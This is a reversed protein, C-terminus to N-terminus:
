ELNERSYVIQGEVITMCVNLDDDVLVIDADKGPAISGKRDDVNIARAANLSTTKWLTEVPLNTVSMLNRLAANMSLTTGALTGDACIRVSGDKKEVAQHSFHYRGDPMGALKVSDTILILRDAGKCRWLIEIAAPHVHELDCILECNIGDLSLVAGVVGPVRHHLPSMANFAHTAHSLGLDRASRIQDYSGNSHAVSVTVGRRVAEEILWQNEPYEPALSLLRIVNLDLWPAAEGRDARRIHASHQAGCKEANLYPGELHAGLLRAGGTRVNQLTAVAQLAQGIRDGSDTWTTALFSTVGGRAFFRAMGTLADSDGDMVDFGNGGHAHIDIFGPLLTAGAANIIEADLTEPADGPAIATIKGDEFLLWARDYCETEAVIRAGEIILPTHLTM